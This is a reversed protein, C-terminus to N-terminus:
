RPPNAATFTNVAAANRPLENMRRVPPPASASAGSKAAVPRRRRERCCRRRERIASKYLRVLDEAEEEVEIDSDRIIQFVGHYLFAFGPFLKDLFLSIANEITIFRIKSGPLRLFRPLSHPITILGILPEDQREMMLVISFGFNSIFPFPHAPDVAVPTLVSFVQEMFYSELWEREPRNLEDPQVIAIGKGFLLRQLEAWGAQQQEMLRAARENVARLQQAPTLRDAPVPTLFVLIGVGIIVLGFLSILLLLPPIGSSM